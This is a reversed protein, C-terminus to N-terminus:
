ENWVRLQRDASTGTELMRGIQDIEARCNLDDVVDDVFALLEEILKREDVEERKGFDILKGDLGYRMARWKNENLVARPYQRFGLNKTRLDYLKAVIAQSLAALALSDEVRSQMDCIRFELTRFKPHPRLDWWIKTGDEICRTQVLLDVFSQYEAWSKFTDPMGTRPMQSFVALRYSKLGTPRGIWFPSSTSLALLHPLFYRAENFVDIARDPNDGAYIHVHIGFIVMERAVDGMDHAIALYRDKPTVAQDRWDSMPHTGSGSITMGAPECLAALSCRLRILEERAEKIDCCIKTGVEVVSQLMEPKIQDGFIEESEQLIQTVHSRLQNTSRDVIQFEEEIGITFEGM